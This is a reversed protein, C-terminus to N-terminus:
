KLRLAFMDHPWRDLYEKELPRPDMGRRQLEIIAIKLNKRDRECTCRLWTNEGLEQKIPHEAKCLPCRLDM